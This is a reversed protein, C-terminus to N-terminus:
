RGCFCCHRCGSLFYFFISLVAFHLISFFRVQPSAVPAQTASMSEDDDGAHQQADFLFLLCFSPLFAGASTPEVAASEDAVSKAPSAPEPDPSAVTLKQLQESVNLASDEAAPVSPASDLKMLEAPLDRHLWGSFKSSETSPIERRIFTLFPSVSGCFHQV